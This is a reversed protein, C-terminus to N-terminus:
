EFDLTAGAAGVDDVVEVSDLAAGATFAIAGGGAPAAIGTTGLPKTGVLPASNMATAGFAVSIAASGKAM